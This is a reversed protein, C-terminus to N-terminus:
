SFWEYLEEQLSSRINFLFPVDIGSLDAINQLIFSHVTHIFISCVPQSPGLFM